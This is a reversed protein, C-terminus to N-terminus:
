LGFSVGVIVANAGHRGSLEFPRAARSRGAWAAHLTVPGLERSVGLRWDIQRRYVASAGGLSVLTGAHAEFRLGHGTGLNGNLEGYLAPQGTLFYHPSFSIRSSLRKGSLGAYLEGYSRGQAAKSYHSYFSGTVGLDLTLAPSIKRAYGGDVEISLPRLLDSSSAVASGSVAGYVGSSDDFSFDLVAVPHRNSVSYGRFNAQSFISLASGVQAEAPSGAALGIAAAAFQLFSTFRGRAVPRFREARATV